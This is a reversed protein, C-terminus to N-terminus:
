NIRIVDRVIMLGGVVRHARRQAYFKWVGEERVGFVTAGSIWNQLDDDDIGLRDLFKCARPGFVSPRATMKKQLM